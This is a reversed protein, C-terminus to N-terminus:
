GEKIMYSSILYIVGLTSGGILSPVSGKKVYAFCGGVIMSVGLTNNLHHSM